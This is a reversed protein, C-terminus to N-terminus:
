AGSGLKGLVERLHAYSEELAQPIVRVGGITDMFNVDGGWRPVVHVHLHGPIGAGACRGLNIGVNIGQPNIAARLVKEALATLEILGARQQATLDTLDGLHETVSVLLHGNTYPYRNLLLVGRDDRLLVLRQSADDSGPTVKAAECLFCGAEGGSAPKAGLQKLYDLRWPAWLNRPNGTGSSSM